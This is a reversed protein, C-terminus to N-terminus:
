TLLACVGGVCIHRCAAGSSPLPWGRRWHPKGVGPDGILAPNNKTRRSLIRIIHELEKERGIVPDLASQAALKTLDRSCQDLMRTEGAATAREAERGRRAAPSPGEGGMSARLQHYLRQAEVGHEDLLRGAGGGNDRLLGLLLHEPSVAGEGLQESEEVALRIIQRCRPTLGQM